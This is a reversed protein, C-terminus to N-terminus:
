ILEGYQPIPAYTVEPDAYSYGCDYSSYRYGNFAQGNSISMTGNDSMNFIYDPHSYVLNGSADVISITVENDVKNDWGNGCDVQENSVFNISHQYFVTPVPIHDVGIPIKKYVDNMWSYVSNGALIYIPRRPNGSTDVTPYKVASMGKVDNMDSPLTSVIETWYGTTNNPLIRLMNSDEIVAIRKTGTGVNFPMWLIGRLNVGSSSSVRNQSTLVNSINRNFFYWYNGNVKNVHKWNDIDTFQIYRRSNPVSENNSSIYETLTGNGMDQLYSYTPGTSVSFLESYAGVNTSVLYSKIGTSASLVQGSIHVPIQKIRGTYDAISTLLNAGPTGAANCYVVRKNQADAIMLYNNFIDIGLPSNLQYSGSGAIGTGAIIVGKGGGIPYRIVRHKDPESIFLYNDNNCVMFANVSPEGIDNYLVAVLESKKALKNGSLPEISILANIQDKTLCKADNPISQGQKVSFIGNNVADILNGGSVTQNGALSNWSM